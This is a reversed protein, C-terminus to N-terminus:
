LEYDPDFTDVHGKKQVELGGDKGAIVITGEVKVDKKEDERSLLKKKTTNKQVGEKGDKFKLPRTAEEEGESYKSSNKSNTDQKRWTPGDSGSRNGGSGWSGQRRNGGEGWSRRSDTFSARRPPVWKLWKGYQPEEGKQLKRSCEKDLHGILGCIFCFDPCYEYEFPCWIARKGGDVEVVTGCMLPETILMRVKVWLFKGVAMGNVLGDVEMFEGIRNGILEATDGDMRGLPFKYVRVWIPIKKFEYEDITKGADFDEMVLLDKDFMWPGSDVAKKKSKTEVRKGDIKVGPMEAESLKLGRLMGEEGEMM